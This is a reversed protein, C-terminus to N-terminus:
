CDPNVKGWLSELLAYEQQGKERHFQSLMMPALKKPRLQPNYQRAKAIYRQAAMSNGMSELCIAAVVNVYGYDPQEMAKREILPLAAAYNGALYETLGRYWDHLPAFGGEPALESARDVVERARDFDGLYAYVQCLLYWAEASAPNRQLVQELTQRAQEQQGAYNEAAGIYTLTLLDGKALDRARRLHDKAKQVYSAFEDDDYIGNIIAANSAWCRLAHALAYEPDIELARDLEKVTQRLSDVSGVARGIRAAARQCFEWAGLSEVPASESRDAESWMLQAFLSGVIKEVLEDSLESLQELPQDFKKAWIHEGSASGILQVTVRARAGMKRISGEVIYRVGLVKGLERVDLSQGKFAFVSTRAPVSLHRNGSLLTIIDETLGDALYAVEDDNSMNTFPLVAIGPKEFATGPKVEGAAVPAQRGHKPTSRTTEGLSSMLESFAREDRQGKWGEFNICHLQRFGLPPMAGDLSLPLLKNNSRAFDAEDRVWHSGLSHTSWGVLVTRAATLEREIKQAFEAGGDMQRDWWVNFGELELANALQEIKERDPRAYSIFIDAM